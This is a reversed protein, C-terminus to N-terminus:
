RALCRISFGYYRWNNNSPYVNSSNFNLGYAGNSSDATSSWYYGWSGASQLFGSNVLGGYLLYFPNLRIDYIDSRLNAFYSEWDNV